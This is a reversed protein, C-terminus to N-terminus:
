ARVGEPEVSVMLRDVQRVSCRQGKVVPVAATNRANWVTGRLEVKGVSGPAIDELPFAIEGVLTDIDAPGHDSLNFRRTLPNRFLALSVVSIVSFLLWQLWLAGALNLFALVGVVLAAVGFFIVYFGGPTAMEGGVLILGLVLWHWWLMTM